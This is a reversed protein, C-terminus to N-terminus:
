NRDDLIWNTIATAIRESVQTIAHVGDDYKMTYIMQREDANENADDGAWFPNIKSGKQKFTYM